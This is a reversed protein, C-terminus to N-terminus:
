EVKYRYVFRGIKGDNDIGEVVAKYTGKVDSNYYEIPFTGNADTTVNPNWYIATRTDSITSNAVNYKPVYFAKAQYFGKFKTTIVGPSSKVNYDTSPDENGVKTTIIILGGPATTGYINLYSSSSLVEVTAINSVSLFKIDDPKVLVGDLMFKIDPSNTLSQSSHRSFYDVEERPFYRTGYILIGSPSANPPVHKRDLGSIKYIVCEFFETCNELDKAGFVKDAHGPGNLNASHPNVIIWPALETGANKRDKVTVEKLERANKLNINYSKIQSAIQTTDAKSNNLIPPSLNAGAEALTNKYISPSTRADLKITVNKDDNDKRAQILLSTTDTFNLNALVFRGQDNAITDVSLADAVSLASIKGRAIPKGSSATLQGSISLGKEPQYALTQYQDAMVAKWDFRRYGQTLLLVDLDAKAQNIPNSFYSNPEEIYGKLDSTLLINSLITSENNEKANYDENYVTLSFSGQVPKGTNDKANFALSTKEKAAYTSKPARLDLNLRDRNNQIFVGRENLPEDNGSFLTFQALGSPFNAKPM